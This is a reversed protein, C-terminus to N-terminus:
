FVTSTTTSRRTTSTTRDTSSTSGSFSTSTTSSDTVGPTDPALTTSPPPQVCAAVNLSFTQSGNVGISLPNPGEQRCRLQFLAKGNGDTEPDSRVLQWGSGGALVVSAAPVGLSRVIGNPDVSRTTVLVALNAAEGVIPPNPAISSTVALGSYRSLQLPLQKQEAGGIFVLTPATLSLDPARWARVRYRGGLLGPPQAPATTTTAITAPTAPANPDPVPPPAPPPPARWSGDPGTLVDMSGVADGVLREIHVVADPVPGDPGVVQGTLVAQGPMLAVKTTTTKGTAGQLAVDALNPPDPPSTVSVVTTPAPPIPEGGGGRCGVVSTVLLVVAAAVAALPTRRV